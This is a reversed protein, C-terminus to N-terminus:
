SGVPSMQKKPKSPSIPAEYKDVSEALLGGLNLESWLANSSETPIGGEKQIHNNVRKNKVTSM